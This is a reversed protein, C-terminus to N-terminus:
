RCPFMGKGMDGYALLSQAAISLKKTVNTKADPSPSNGDQTLAM